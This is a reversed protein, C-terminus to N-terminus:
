PSQVIPSRVDVTRASYDVPDCLRYGERVVGLRILEITMYASVAVLLLNHIAVIPKLGFPQRNKMIKLGFVVVILYVLDLVLTGVPSSM